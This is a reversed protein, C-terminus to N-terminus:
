HFTFHFRLFILVPSHVNKMHMKIGPDVPFRTHEVVAMRWAKAYTFLSSAKKFKSQQCSWELFSEVVDYDLNKRCVEIPDPNTFHNSEDHVKQCFRTV